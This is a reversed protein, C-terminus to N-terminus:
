LTFCFRMQCRKDFPFAQLYSTFIFHIYWVLFSYLQKLALICFLVHLGPRFCCSYSPLTRRSSFLSSISAFSLYYLFRIDTVFFVLSLPRLFSFAIFSSSLFSSLTSNCPKGRSLGCWRVPECNGAWFINWSGATRQARYAVEGVNM